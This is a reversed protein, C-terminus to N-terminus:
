GNVKRVYEDVKENRLVGKSIRKNDKVAFIDEGTLANSSFSRSVGSSGGVDLARGIVSFDADYYGVIGIL